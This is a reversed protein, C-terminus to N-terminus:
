PLEESRHVLAGGVVVLRTDTEIMASPAGDLRGAAPVSADDEWPM